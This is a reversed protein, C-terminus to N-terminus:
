KPSYIKFNKKKLSCQDIVYKSGRSQRDWFVLVMDAYDIILDNRRIPAVRGYKEYEPFFETIRINNELAYKRACSDIGKAGGSVIETTNEPLYDQLNNVILGRSGVVAVKM